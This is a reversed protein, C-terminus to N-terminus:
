KYFLKYLKRLLLKAVPLPFAKEISVMMSKLSLKGRVINKWPLEATIFSKIYADDSDKARLAAFAIDLARQRRIDAYRDESYNEKLWDYIRNLQRIHRMSLQNTYSTEGFLRRYHYLCKDVQAVTPHAKMLKYMILADEGLNIGPTYAAGARTFLDRKVLKIWSSGAGYRLFEDFDVFGKEDTKFIRQTPISRGDNYETYYGCVTIDAGTRVATQYLCEYMDPEVWDDSDCVIVYEGRAHELGTQRASSLGGNPQHVVTFRSDQAAYRDCISGSDDTSGDDVVIFEIDQLTQAALSDLCKVLYKSTNYVPVTVSVKVAMDGIMM